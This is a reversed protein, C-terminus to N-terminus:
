GSAAAHTTRGWGSSLYFREDTEEFVGQALPQGDWVDIYDLSVRQNLANPHREGLVTVTLTHSGDGLDDFYVSETNDERTYLDVTALAEGDVAIEALGGFR